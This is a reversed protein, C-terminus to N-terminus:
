DLQAFSITSGFAFREIRLRNLDFAELVAATEGHWDKLNLEDFALIAGKPMRPLFYELAVRTPAYVDFDLYLLSVILHPNEAVYQPITQTADGRVLEVKPIHGVFRNQDYLAVCRQIEAYSDVAFGGTHAEGSASGADRADLPRFGEFTDFGIVRRQHNVPEFIASLQAFTMLGGGFLVGCEVISGQVNLARKFIEYKILFNTLNQRPVYMPFNMLKEVASYPSGEFREELQEMYTKERDTRLNTSFRYPESQTLTM